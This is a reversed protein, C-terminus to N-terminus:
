WNSQYDGELQEIYEDNAFIHKSIKKAYTSKGCGPLGRMLFLDKGEVGSYIKTKLTNTKM